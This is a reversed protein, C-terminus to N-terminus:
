DLGDLAIEAGGSHFVMFRVAAEVEADTLEDNGGRAPMLGGLSTEFGNQAHSILTTIGKTVRKGWFRSGTIKPAGFNGSGHCIRCNQDWIQGGEVLKPHPPVPLRKASVTGKLGRDPYPPPVREASHTEGPATLGGWAILVAAAIRARM